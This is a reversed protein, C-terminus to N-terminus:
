EIMVWATKLTTINRKCPFGDSFNRLFFSFLYIFRRKEFIGTKKLIRLQIITFFLRLFLCCFITPTDSGNVISIPFHPHISWLSIIIISHFLKRKKKQLYYWRWERDNSLFHMYREKKWIFQPWASTWSNSRSSSIYNEEKFFQIINM